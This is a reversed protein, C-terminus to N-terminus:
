KCRLYGNSNWTIVFSECNKNIEFENHTKLFDHVARMPDLSKDVELGNNCITDEVIFYQGSTVFPAYNELIKLTQEYEHSSDEIVMVKDLGKIRDVVSWLTKPDNADGTILHIRPHNWVPSSVLSHDIDISIIHGTKLHDMWHAMALASGGMYTGIEIIVDPNNNCILEQYVWMDLPNKRTPIGFYTSKTLIRNQQLALIEKLTMTLKNEM